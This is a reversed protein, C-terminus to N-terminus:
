SVPSLKSQSFASGYDRLFSRFSRPMHGTVKQVDSSLNSAEGRRYHAYDEILGDAQWVPMGYSLLADQM